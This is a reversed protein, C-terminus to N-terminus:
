LAELSRCSRAFGLKQGATCLATAALAGPNPCCNSIWLTKAFFSAFLHDAVSQFTATSPGECLKCCRPSGCCDPLEEEPRSQENQETRSAGVPDICSALGVKATSGTVVRPRGQKDVAGNVTSRGVEAATGATNPADSGGRCSRPTAPGESGSAM